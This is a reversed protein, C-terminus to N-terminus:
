QSGPWTGGHSRRQAGATIGPYLICVLRGRGPGWLQKPLARPGNPPWESRLPSRASGPAALSPTPPTHPCSPCCASGLAFPVNRSAAPPAPTERTSQLNPTLATPKTKLSLQPVAPSGPRSKLRLTSPTSAGLAARAKGGRQSQTHARLSCQCVPVPPGMGPHPTLGWKRFTSHALCVWM